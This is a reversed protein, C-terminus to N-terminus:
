NARIPPRGGGEPPRAVPAPGAASASGTKKGFFTQVAEVFQNLIMIVLSTSFGLVFPLLLLLSKLALQDSVIPSPSHLEKIFEVFPGYGFPLTLVVGFLAGLVVRLAILKTDTIDFTADEQVALANMGIFAISGIGGLAAVWALFSLFSMFAFLVATVAVTQAGISAVGLLSAVFPGAFAIVLSALAVFGLIIATRIVSPPIQGYLFRRRDQETLNRYLEDSRHEFDRWEDSTPFRGEEHYYLLNLEGLETAWASSSKAQRIMYSRLAKLQEIDAMFRRDCIRYTKREADHSDATRLVMGVSSDHLERVSDSM